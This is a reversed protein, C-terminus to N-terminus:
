ENNGYKKPWNGSMSVEELSGLLIYEGNIGEVSVVKNEKAILAPDQDSLLSAKILKAEFVAIKLEDREIIGAKMAIKTEINGIKVVDLKKYRDSGKFLSDKISVKGLIKTVVIDKFYGGTGKADVTLGYARNKDVDIVSTDKREVITFKENEIFSVLSDLNDTYKGKVTKYALQASKIDLMKNVAIQFRKEKLKDFEIPAQVSQYILYGFFLTVIWLVISLIPKLKKNTSKNILKALFYIAVAIIVFIVLLLIM